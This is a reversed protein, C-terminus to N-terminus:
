AGVVVTPVALVALIAACVRRRPRRAVREWTSLAGVAIMLAPQHHGPIMALMLPWCTGLCQWGHYAGYRVCSRDAAFGRSRLPLTRHCRKLFRNHQATLHWAAGALLLAGAATGSGVPRQTGAISWLALAVTGFAAWIVVYTTLFIAPARYRRRWMSRFSVARAVPLTAPLMMAVVMAVWGGVGLQHQHGAHAALGMWASAVLV